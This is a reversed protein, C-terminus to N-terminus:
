PSSPKPTHYGYARRVLGQVHTNTAEALANSLGHDLTNDILDKFRTLTRALATMEPIRSRRAWSILGTLLRRGAEGKVTFVERLQEKMLYARYLPDNTKKISALAVQQDGTLTDPNKLVAWRTGKVDAAAGPRGTARLDRTIRRRVGDVATTAWAVVHFADLCVVAGPARDAVVTHIWDAGDASVHTLAASRAPGLADFFAAVVAKSRGPAAWVVRGTDHCTVVTLYKHGRYKHGRCYSKEDIGVRALGALRDTRGAREAVVREVVATVSRWSVRMVEQVATKATRAALWAVQEEFAHTFRAGHRAWPVAAVVVGHAVCSVRPADGELFVRTSGLDLGRWRRVGQGRDYGRCRRGCRGCRGARRRTPRVGVVVVVEGSGLTQVGVGEVVTHEVGLVVRLVRSLSM